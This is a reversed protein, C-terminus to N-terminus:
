KVTLQPLFVRGLPLRQEKNMSILRLGVFLSNERTNIILDVSELNELDLELSSESLLQSVNRIQLGVIKGNGTLYFIMDDLMFRERINENEEKCSIIFSDDIDNYSHRCRREM